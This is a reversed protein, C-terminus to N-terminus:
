CFEGATQPAEDTGSRAQEFTCLWSYHFEEWLPRVDEPSGNLAAVLASVQPWDPVCIGKLILELTVPAPVGPSSRHLNDLDPRRAATYLGQLCHLLRDAAEAIPRRGPSVLGHSAEWLHRLMAADVGFCDMMAQVVAWGPLREASLIRSVYSSSVGMSAAVERLALGSAEHLFCLANALLRAAHNARMMESRKPRDKSIPLCPSPLPLRPSHTPRESLQRTLRRETEAENWRDRATHSSIQAARAIRQWNTGQRRADLVAGASYNDVERALARARGLLTPLDEGAYEGALLEQVLRPLGEAMHLGM